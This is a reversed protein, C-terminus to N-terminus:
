DDGVQAIRIGICLKEGSRWVDESHTDGEDKSPERVLLANTTWKNEARLRKGDDAESDQEIRLLCLVSEHACEESASAGVGGDGHKQRPRGVVSAAVGLLTNADCQHDTDPIQSADTRRKDITILVLLISVPEAVPDHNGGEAHGPRGDPEGDIGKVTQVLLLLLSALALVNIRAPRVLKDILAIVGWEEAVGDLEFGRRWVGKRKGSEFFRLPKTTAERRESEKIKMTTRPQRTNYDRWTNKQVLM